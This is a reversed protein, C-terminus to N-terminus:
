AFNILGMKSEITEGRYKNEHPIKLYIVRSPIIENSEAHRVVVNGNPKIRLIVKAQAWSFRHESPCLQIQYKGAKSITNDNLVKNQFELCLVEDLVNLNAISLFAVAEKQATVEFKENHQPIFFHELFNNGDQINTIKNLKFEPILRDQLVGNMREVRGKAQPSHAAILEVGLKKLAREIQTEVIEKKMEGRGQGQYHFWSAKDTYIARPLGFKRFVYDLVTLNTLSGDHKFLRACVIRTTADDVVVILQQKEGTGFWDHPSTDMQLLEGFRPKRERRSRYKRSKKISRGSFYKSRIWKRLTERSIKINELELFKESLHTFNFGCDQYKSQYVDLIQKKIAEATQNNSSKGTLGHVVKEPGNKSVKNKLRTIQKISLNLKQAAEARTIRKEIYDQIVRLRLLNHGSMVIGKTTQLSM